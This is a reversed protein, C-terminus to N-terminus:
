RDDDVGVHKNCRTYIFAGEFSDPGSDPFLDAFLNGTSVAEVTGCGTVPCALYICHSSM